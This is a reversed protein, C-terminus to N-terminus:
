EEDDMQTNMPTAGPLNGMGGGMLMQKLMDKDFDARNHSPREEEDEIDDDEEDEIGDDDFHKRIHIGHSQGLGTPGQM